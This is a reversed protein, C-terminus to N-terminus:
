VMDGAPAKVSYMVRAGMPDTKGAPVSASLCQPVYTWHDSCLIFASGKKPLDRTRNRTRVETKFM